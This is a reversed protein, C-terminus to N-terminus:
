KETQPKILSYTWRKGPSPERDGSPIKGDVPEVKGTKCTWSLGCPRASADMWDILSDPVVKISCVDKHMQGIGMFGTLVILRLM